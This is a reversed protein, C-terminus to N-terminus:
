QPSHRWTQNKSSADNRTQASDSVKWVYHIEGTDYPLRHHDSDNYSYADTPCNLVLADGGGRCQMGHWIGPSEVVLCPNVDGAHLEMVFGRTNSGNSANYLVIKVHGPNIIHIVPKGSPDWEPRFIETIVGQDRPVHCV